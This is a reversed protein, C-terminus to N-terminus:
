YSYSFFSYGIVLDQSILKIWINLKRTSQSTSYIFWFHYKDQPRVQSVLCLPKWNCGNQQLDTTQKQLQTTNQHM